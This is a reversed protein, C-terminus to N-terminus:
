SVADGSLWKQTCIIAQVASQLPAALIRSTDDAVGFHCPDVCHRWKVLHTRGLRHVEYPSRLAGSIRIRSSEVLTELPGRSEILTAPKM